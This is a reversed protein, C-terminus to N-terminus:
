FSYEPCGTSQIRGTLEATRKLDQTYSDPFPVGIGNHFQHYKEALNFPLKDSDQEVAFDGGM